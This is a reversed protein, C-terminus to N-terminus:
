IILMKMYTGKLICVKSQKTMLQLRLSIQLTMASLNICDIKKRVCVYLECPMTSLNNDGKETTQISINVM